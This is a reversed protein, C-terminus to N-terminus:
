RTTCNVGGPEGAETMKLVPTVVIAGPETCSRISVTLSRSAAPLLESSAAGLDRSTQCSLM